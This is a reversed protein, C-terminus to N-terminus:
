EVIVARKENQKGLHAKFLTKNNSKVVTQSSLPKNTILIDGVAMDAISKLSIKGLSIDVSLDVVEKGICSARKTLEGMGSAYRRGCLHLALTQSIVLEFKIGQNSEQIEFLFYKSALKPEDHFERVQTLHHCIHDLQQLLELRAAFIVNQKIDDRPVDELLNGFVIREIFQMDSLGAHGLGNEIM